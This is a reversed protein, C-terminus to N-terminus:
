HLSVDTNFAIENLVVCSFADLLSIFPVNFGPSQRTIQSTLSSSRRRGQHFGRSKSSFNDPSFLLREDYIYIYIYKVACCGRTPTPWAKRTISAVRDCESVGCETPSRQVLSWGTASVEVQCCLVRV